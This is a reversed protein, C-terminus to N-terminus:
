QSVVSSFSIKYSRRSFSGVGPNSHKPGTGGIVKRNHYPSQDTSRAKKISSRLIEKKPATLHTKALQGAASAPRILPTADAARWLLMSGDKVGPDSTDRM